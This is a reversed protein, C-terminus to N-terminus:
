KLTFRIWMGKLKSFLWLKMIKYVKLNKIWVKFLCNNFFLILYFFHVNIKNWHYFFFTKRIKVGDVESVKASTWADKCSLQSCLLLHQQIHLAPQSTMGPCPFLPNPAATTRYPLVAPWGSSPIIHNRQRAEGWAWYLWVWLVHWTQDACYRTKHASVCCNSPSTDFFVHGLFVETLFASCRNPQQERGCQVVGAETELRFMVSSSLHGELCDSGGCIVHETSVKTDYQLSKFM